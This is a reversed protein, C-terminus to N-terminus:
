VGFISVLLLMMWTPFPQKRNRREDKPADVRKADEVSSDGHKELKARSIDEQPAQSSVRQESHLEQDHKEVYEPFLKRFAANKCNFALSDKALRRKDAATTNVSGTTPSNDT